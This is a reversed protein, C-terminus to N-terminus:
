EFPIKCNKYSAKRTRLLAPGRHAHFTFHAQLGVVENQAGAGLASPNTRQGNVKGGLNTVSQLNRSGISRKKKQRFRKMVLIYTQDKM